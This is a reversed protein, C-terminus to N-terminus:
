EEQKYRYKKTWKNVTALLKAKMYITKKNGENFKQVELLEAQKKGQITHEAAGEVIPDGLWYPPHPTDWWWEGGSVLLEAEVYTDKIFITKVFVAVCVILTIIFFLLITTKKSLKITNSEKKMSLM